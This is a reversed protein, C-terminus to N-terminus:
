GLKSFSQTEANILRQPWFAVKRAHGNMYPGSLRNGIGLQVIGTPITGVIDTVASGGNIAGAFSDLKYAGTMKFVSNLTLTGLDLNAQTTTNSVAFFPAPLDFMALDISIANSLGNSAQLFDVTTAGQNAFVSGEFAFTGESANYWSSFNTGTMNVSDANRLVALTTTSIYSTAFAGAEADAGYLYAGSTGNGAYNIANDSARVLWVRFSNVGITSTVSISARYWGNNFATVSFSVPVNFLGAEEGGTSSFVRGTNSPTHQLAIKRTTDTIKYYVTYTYTVASALTVAQEVRHVSTASDEKLFDANTTGDPSVLVNADVSSGTKLWTVDNFQESYLLVNTRAEEILLGKPALTAPNYDFRPLNANVVAIFGSSNVATATNLARTVSVRPDLTGTTFDLAMRPLVRETATLSYAPTIM